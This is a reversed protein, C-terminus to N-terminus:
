RLNDIDGKVDSKKEDIPNGFMVPIGTKDSSIIVKIDDGMKDIYIYKLIEPNEKILTSVRALREFYLEYANKETALKSKLKIEELMNEFDQDRLKKCRVLGEMYLEDEPFYGKSVTELKDCIIGAGKLKELLTSIMADKLIQEDKIIGSRNYVPELYNILVSSCIAEIFGKVYNDLTAKDSFYAKDPPNNTNIRYSVSFPIKIIYIEDKLKSLSPIVVSVNMIITTKTDTIGISYKWPLAGQWVFNFRDSFIIIVEGTGTDKVVGIRDNKLYYFSFVFLYIVASVILIKLLTKILTNM